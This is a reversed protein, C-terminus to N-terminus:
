TVAPCGQEAGCGLVGLEELATAKLLPSMSDWPLVGVPALLLLHLCLPPPPPALWRPPAACCWGLHPLGHESLPAPPMLCCPTPLQALPSLRAGWLQMQAAPHGWGWPQVEEEEMRRLTETIFKIYQSTLTTLESYRTRLDVYQPCSFAALTLGVGAM